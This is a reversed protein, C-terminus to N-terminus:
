YHEFKLKNVCYCMVITNTDLANQAPVGLINNNVTCVESFLIICLDCVFLNCITALGVLRQKFQDSDIMHQSLSNWLKIASPFFSYLYSDIRTMPQIFRKSHGRTDHLMPVPTLYSNASIDVLHNTIKFIIAKQEERCEALTLWNLNTLIQTVSAYHSFNNM